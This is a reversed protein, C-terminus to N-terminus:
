GAVTSCPGLAPSRTRPASSARPRWGRRSLCRAAATIAALGKSSMMVPGPRSFLKRCGTPTLKPASPIAAEAQPDDLFEDAGQARRRNLRLTRPDALCAELAEMEGPGAAQLRMLRMIVPQMTRRQDDLVVVRLVLGIVDVRDPM